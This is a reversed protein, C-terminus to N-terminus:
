SANAPEQPALKDQTNTDFDSANHREHLQMEQDGFTRNVMRGRQVAPRADILQYNGEEPGKAVLAAVEATSIVLAPDQKVPKKEAKSPAAAAEPAPPTSTACGVAFTAVLLATFIFRLMKSM